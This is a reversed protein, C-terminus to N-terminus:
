DIGWHDLTMMKDFSILSKVVETIKKKVLEPDKKRCLYLLDDGLLIIDKYAGRYSFQYKPAFLNHLMFKLSVVTQDDYPKVNLVRICMSERAVELIERLEVRDSVSSMKTFDIYFRGKEITSLTSKDNYASQVVAVIQGLSAVLSIVDSPNSPTENSIGSFKKNSAAMIASNQISRSLQHSIFHEPTNNNMVFMEHMIMLYDRICKDSLSLVVNYGGYPVSLGYEKCLCLMAAVKKQRFISSKVRKLDNKSMIEDLSITLKDALYTEIYPLVAQDDQLESNSYSITDEFYEDTEPFDDCTCLVSNWEAKFVEAKQIFDTLEPKESRDIVPKLVYNLDWLGLINKLNIGLDNKSLLREFRLETVATVFEHFKSPKSYETELSYHDRDASTLPHNHLYTSNIDMFGNLSAIAFSVDNNQRAVMTNIAKQQYHYLSEVSDLCVKLTWKSPESTKELDSSKSCLDILIGGIEELMEGMQLKPFKENPELNERNTACARINEHMEKFYIRLSNLRPAPKNEFYKRIESRESLITDVASYEDTPAFSFIGESRLSLIAHIFLQLIQYELYLTYVRAQEEEWQSETMNEKIPPWNLFNSTVYDPINLYIGVYKKEFPNVSNVLQKKISDNYLRQSWEFGRLLTTKGTGRSGTIYVSKKGEWESFEPPIWIIHDRDTEWRFDQFPSRGCTM